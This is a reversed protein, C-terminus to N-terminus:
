NNLNKYKLKNVPSLYEATGCFTKRYNNSQTHVANGFDTIKVINNNFLVINELKIDRHIIYRKRLYDLATSM